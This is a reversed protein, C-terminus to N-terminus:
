AKMGYLNQRKALLNKREDDRDDALSLHSDSLHLARFPSSLGIEIHTITPKM